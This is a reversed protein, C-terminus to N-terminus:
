KVNKFELTYTAKLLVTGVDVNGIRNLSDMYVRTGFHMIDSVDTRLWPSAIMNASSATLYNNTMVDGKVKPYLRHTIVNEKGLQRTKLEPHQQYDTITQAGTSDYDDMIHLVPLMNNPNSVGSENNSFIITFDVYKIRYLDFLGTFEAANPLLPTTYTTGSVVLSLGALSPFICLDYGLGNWGSLLNLPINQFINRRFVYTNGYSNIARYRPFRRGFSVSRSAAKPIQRQYNYDDRSRFKSQRRLRFSTM